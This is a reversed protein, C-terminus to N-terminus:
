DLKRFARILVEKKKVAFLIIVILIFFRIVLYGFLYSIIVACMIIM